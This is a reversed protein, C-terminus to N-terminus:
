KSTELYNNKGRNEGRKVCNFYKNYLIEKSFVASPPFSCFKHLTFDTDLDSNTLLYIIILLSFIYMFSSIAHNITVELM